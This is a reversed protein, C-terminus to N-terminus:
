SFNLLLAGLYQDIARRMALILEQKSSAQVAIIVDGADLMEGYYSKTIGSYVIHARMKKYEIIM